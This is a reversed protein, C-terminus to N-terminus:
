ALLPIKVTFSLENQEIHPERDSLLAYRSKINGLGIGSSRPKRLLPLLNNHVILEDSENTFIRVRLPKDKEIRNYKLANEVLLQLTVPPLRMDLKTPSVSIEFNVGSGIRNKLLFLYADLFKLEDKLIILKSKSNLLLYRYVKAFNETYEFGLQQDKLILESLVSLNNFVFHPDLQLRLAQLEIEAVLQKSEAAKIEHEARNIIESKWNETLYHITSVGSIMLSLVIIATIYHRLNVDNDTLEKVDVNLFSFIGSIM